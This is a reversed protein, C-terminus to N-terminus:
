DKLLGNSFVYSITETQIRDIPMKYNFEKEIYKKVAAPDTKRNLLKDIKEDSITPFSIAKLFYDAKKNAAPTGDSYDYKITKLNKVTDVLSRTVPTYRYQDLLRRDSFLARAGEYFTRYGGARKLAVLVFNYSNNIIATQSQDKFAADVFKKYEDFSLENVKKKFDKYSTFKIRELLYENLKCKSLQAYQLMNYIAQIATNTQNLLINLENLSYVTVRYYMIFQQREAETANAYFKNLLQKSEEKTFLQEHDEILTCNNLFLIRGVQLPTLKDSKLLRKIADKSIRKNKMFEREKKAEIMSLQVEKM